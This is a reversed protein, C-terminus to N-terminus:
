QQPLSAHNSILSLRPLLSLTDMRQHQVRVAGAQNILTTHDLRESSLEIGRRIHHDNIADAHPHLFIQFASMIIFNLRRIQRLM